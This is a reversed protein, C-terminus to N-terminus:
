PALPATAKEQCTVQRLERFILQEGVIETRGSLAEILGSCNAAVVSSFICRASIMRQAAAEPLRLAITPRRPQTKLAADRM